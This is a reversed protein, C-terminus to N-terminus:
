REGTLSKHIIQIIDQTATGPGFIGKVGMELLQPKDAEPIIGGVLVVAHGMARKDLEEITRSVLEMHAGSLISLGVVDADEQAASEAIMEPTQRIGTYVVEM